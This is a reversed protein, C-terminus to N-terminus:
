GHFPCRYWYGEGFILYCQLLHPLLFTLCQGRSMVQSHNGVCSCALQFTWCPTPFFEQLRRISSDHATSSAPLPPTVKGSTHPWQFTTCAGTDSGIGVHMYAAGLPSLLNYVYNYFPLIDTVAPSQPSSLASSTFTCSAVRSHATAM